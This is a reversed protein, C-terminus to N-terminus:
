KYGILFLYQQQKEWFYYLLKVSVMIIIVVMMVLKVFKDGTVKICSHDNDDGDDGCQFKKCPARYGTCGKRMIEHLTTEM